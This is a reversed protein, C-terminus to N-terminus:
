GGNRLLRALVLGRCINKDEQLSDIESSSDWFSIAPHVLETNRFM